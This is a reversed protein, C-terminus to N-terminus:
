LQYELVANKAIEEAEDILYRQQDAGEKEEPNM